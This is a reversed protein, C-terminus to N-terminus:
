IGFLSSLRGQNLSQRCTNVGSSARCGHQEVVEGGVGFLLLADVLLDQIMNSMSTPDSLSIKVFHSIELYYLMKLFGNQM